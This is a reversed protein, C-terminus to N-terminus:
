HIQLISDDFDLEELLDLLDLMVLKLDEKHSSNSKISSNLTNTKSNQQKKAFNRGFTKFINEEEEEPDEEEEASFHYYNEEDTMRKDRNEIEMKKLLFKAKLFDENKLSDLFEAQYI